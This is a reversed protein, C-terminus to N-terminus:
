SNRQFKSLYAAFLISGLIVSLSITTSIHIGHLVLVMKAAVFSLIFGLGYKLSRLKEMLVSVLFYMSRLGIIALINSTFIVYFESTISLIASISDVAFIIDSSEILVLAIFLPTLYMKNKEDFVFFRGSSMRSTVRFHKELFQILFNESVDESTISVVRKAFVIKGASWLLIGSFIYFIWNFRNTLYIGLYIFIFRFVIAGIIGWFLIRHQYKQAINLYKFILIFVFLNEISLAIELVYCTIFSMAEQPSSYWRMWLAFLIGTLVFVGSRVVSEKTGLVITKASRKTGIGLDWLLMVTVIFLFVGWHIVNFEGMIKKEKQYIQGV